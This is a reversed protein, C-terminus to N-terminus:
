GARDQDLSLLAAIPVFAALAIAGGAKMTLPVNFAQNQHM